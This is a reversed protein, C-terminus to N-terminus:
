TERSLILAAVYAVGAPLNLMRIIIGPGFVLAVLWACLGVFFPIFVGGLGISKMSVLTALPLFILSCYAVFTSIVGLALRAAGIKEAITLKTKM